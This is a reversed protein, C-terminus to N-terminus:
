AGLYGGVDTGKCRSWRSDFTIELWLRNCFYRNIWVTNDLIRQWELNKVLYFELLDVDGYKTMGVIVGIISVLYWM